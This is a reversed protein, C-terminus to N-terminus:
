STLAVVVAPPKVSRDKEYIEKRDIRVCPPAEFGLRVKDNRLEVVSISIPASTRLALLEDDSMTSFDLYITQERRRTLVLM